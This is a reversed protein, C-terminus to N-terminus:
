VGEHFRGAVGGPAPLNEGGGAGGAVAEGARSELEAGGEFADARVGGGLQEYADHVRVAEHVVLVAGPVDLHLVARL